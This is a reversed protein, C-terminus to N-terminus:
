RGATLTVDFTEGQDNTVKWSDGIKHKELASCSAKPAEKAEAPAVPTLCLTKGDDKTTWKGSYKVPKGDADTGTANYTGNKDFMLTGATGTKESKTTVTNGYTMAMADDAALASGALLATAGAVLGALVYKRFQM